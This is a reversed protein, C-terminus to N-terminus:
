DLRIILTSGGRPLLAPVTVRRGDRTVTVEHDGLFGRVTAEGADNTTGDAATWWDGRVLREYAEGHPRPSFDDNFLAADPRWHAREWFGWMVIGDVAPHSFLATYFDRLYDAQLQPDNFNVDFETVKIPLGFAGFRDLVALLEDPGSLQASFHGQMGIGDLPAGADLLRQIQDLYGRQHATSAGGTTLIAYDNLYREADPDAAAALEFWDAVVGDGVIDQVERNTFTENAVDWEDIRGSWRGAAATVRDAVAARLAAPDDRLSEIREAEGDERGMYMFSPWVLTHGRVTKGHRALWTLAADISEPTGQGHNNWKLDNELTAENFLRDFVERYRRGDADDQTLWQSTVASGFAFAHRTMRVEVGADPVPEGVADIVRVHLDAKRLRDIREAAAARWPADPEAGPYSQRTQPLTALDVGPGFSELRFGGLEITQRDFGFQFAAQSAGAAFDTRAHFPVQFTKWDGPVQLVRTVSKEHPEQNQEFDIQVQGEGTMSETCRLTVTALLADGEAIPRDITYALQVGWRPEVGFPVSVRWAADFPQGDVPVVSAEARDIMAGGFTLAAAEPEALVAVPQPAALAAASALLGLAVAALRSPVHTM